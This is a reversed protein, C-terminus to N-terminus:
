EAEIAEITRREDATNLKQEELIASGRTLTTKVTEM